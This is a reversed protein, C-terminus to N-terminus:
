DSIPPSLTAQDLRLGYRSFRVAQEAGSSLSPDRGKSNFVGTTTFILRSSYIRIRQFHWYSHARSHLMSDTSADSPNQALKNLWPENYLLIANRSSGPNSVLVVSDTHSAPLALLELLIPFVFCDQCPVRSPHSSSTNRSAVRKAKTWISDINNPASCGYDRMEFYVQLEFQSSQRSLSTSYSLKGTLEVLM